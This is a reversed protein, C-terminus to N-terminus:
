SSHLAWQHLLAFVGQATPREKFSGDAMGKLERDCVEAAGDSAGAIGRLLGAAAGHQSACPTSPSAWSRGRKGKSRSRKRLAHCRRLTSMLLDKNRSAESSQVPAHTVPGTAIITGWSMCFRAGASNQTGYNYCYIPRRSTQCWHSRILCNRLYGNM